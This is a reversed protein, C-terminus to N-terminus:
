KVSIKDPISFEADFIDQVQESSFDILNASYSKFELRDSDTIRGSIIIEIVVRTEEKKYDSTQIEILSSNNNAIISALKLDIWDMEMIDEIESLYNIAFRDKYLEFIEKRMPFEYRIVANTVSSKKESEKETFFKIHATSTVSYKLSFTIIILNLLLFDKEHLNVLFIEDQIDFIADYGNNQLYKPLAKCMDECFKQINCYSKKRQIEEPVSNINSIFSSLRNQLRAIKKHNDTVFKLKKDVEAAAPNKLQVFNDKIENVMYKIEEILIKEHMNYIEIMNLLSGTYISHEKTLNVSNFFIFVIVKEHKKEGSENIEEIEDINAVCRNLPPPINIDMVSAAGTNITSELKKMNNIDVFRKINNNIQLKVLYSRATLNKYIIKLDLNLIVVPEFYMSYKKYKELYKLKEANNM